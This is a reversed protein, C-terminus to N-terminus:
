NRNDTSSEDEKNKVINIKIELPGSENSMEQTTEKPADLGHMQALLKLASVSAAPAFESASNAIAILKETLFELTVKNKDRLETERKEIEAAVEPKRLLDSGQVECTRRAAKPYVSAYAATANRGNAMYEDVFAMHRNSIQKM